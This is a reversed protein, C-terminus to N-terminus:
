WSNLKDPDYVSFGLMEAKDRNPKFDDIFIKDCGRFIGSNSDILQALQFYKLDETATINGKERQILLHYKVGRIALLLPLWWKRERSTVIVVYAHGTEYFHNCTDKCPLSRTWLNNWFTNESIFKALDGDKEYTGVAEFLTKDLDTCFLTKPKDM